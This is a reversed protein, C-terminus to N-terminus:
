ACCSTMTVARESPKTECCVSARRRRTSMERPQKEIPEEGEDPGGLVLDVIEASTAPAFVLAGADAM